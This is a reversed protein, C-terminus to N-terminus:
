DDIRSLLAVPFRQLLERLRVNGGPVEDGTLENEWLGLPVPVTTDEWNGGLGLVLRPVITIADGGRSFAVVHKAKAGQAALPGYSGAAGFLEPRQARFALTRLILWLKPLGEERRRWAEDASISKLEEMLQRRRAFDVPRRNDPDVLSLDWLETGQYIDPVSPATLKLLTQALSNIRGPEILPAIFRELDTTFAADALTAAVFNALAEDYAAHRHRWRTHQKAECAATQLYSLARDLPLPWAGVLTQYFLYEANRDPWPASKASDACGNRRHKGNMASWRRVAACWEAPIESLVALRARVDESRKTDHTSTALMSDPWREQAQLCAQHFEPVSLGFRGPDGGVENLAVFRNFCYFATDEVGKAMAPGTLQQFRLVFESETPGVTRRLLLDGLFDFLPHLDTRHQRAHALAQVICALQNEGQGEGQGEGMRHSLSFEVRSSALSLVLNRGAREETSGRGDSPLPNPHPSPPGAQESSTPRAAVEAPMFATSGVYSRYVPFAAALELLAERLPERPLDIGHEAAIRALLRALRDVEAGFLERLVLLKKERIIAAWDAPEGTFEAYFETLPAEGAPDAFLGTVRNLFDYGTTGAVPWDDPLEEGPQLIKEVVIWSEPAAARLRQLYELPDRLGDPHDVRLGDVFGRQCWDLIREHTVCFVEPEEVRLAALTNVVFFRRYNVRANAEHWDTLLYHQRGLFAALKAPSSNLDAVFRRRPEGAPPLSAPDAPFKHDQYRLAVEDAECEARLESRELVAGLSDPLVPALVKAHLEPDPSDWDIDFYGAFRSAQGHKLVDWWWPNEPGIGAHNPVIDLVLGMGDERLAAVFAALEAETGVEPNIQSPDCVDYGHTSGPRAKLLPSAYVHSVGLERLYPVLETAHRLTFSRNFQLRYTARPVCAPKSSDHPVPRM